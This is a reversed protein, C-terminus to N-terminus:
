RSGFGTLIVLMTRIAISIDVLLSVNNVYWLDYSLKTRTASIDDAYGQRVQAWGTIGPRLSHRLSFAPIENQISGILKLQEPRPGILSMEGILVNWLQPLEDIRKNRLFRGIRTIRLDDQEAFKAEEGGVATRMTRFKYITFPSGRFGVRRQQYVPGGSSEVMIFLAVFSMFPLLLILLCASLVIDIVRKLPLYANNGITQQSKRFSLQTLDVKGSLHEKLNTHEEVDISSNICNILLDSWKDSALESEKLIILDLETVKGMNPMIPRIFDPAILDAFDAMSTEPIGIVPKNVREFLLLTPICLMIQLIFGWFLFVSSYPMRFTLVLVVSVLFASLLSVLSKERLHYAIGTSQMVLGISTTLFVFILVVLTTLTTQPLATVPLGAVFSGLMTQLFAHLITTILAISLNAVIRKSRRTKLTFEQNFDQASM